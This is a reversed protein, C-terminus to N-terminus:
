RAALAKRIKEAHGALLDNDAMEGTHPKLSIGEFRPIVHVHTHFVVQGGAPESFQQITTGDAGFAKIVTHAMKQVTAMVANLDDTEIDLINRSPAKPIVLIHGDGRPMIDMIVLTKDDEYIKHSPLEGRLIKAFVNQDDYKAASM